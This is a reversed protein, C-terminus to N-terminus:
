VLVRKFRFKDADATMVSSTPGDKGEQLSQSWGILLFAVQPLQEGLYVTAITSWLAAMAALLSFAFFLDEKRRFRWTFLILKLMTDAGILVFLILGLRGQVLQILLFENDISEQGKVMPRSLTGWGLWGGEEVIPKYNELLLRRYAASAQQENTTGDGSASTYRDLYSYLAMGGAVLLLAIVISAVRTNKFRPIQLITFALAAGLFPGRSQTLFLMGFLIGGLVHRRELKSFRPGLLSVSNPNLKNVQVLWWNLTLTIAFVIGALEADSFSTALRAVGGRMQVSWASYGLIKEGIIAYPNLGMKLEYLGFLMLCVIISVFRKATAIRLGPELLLRGVIYPFLM